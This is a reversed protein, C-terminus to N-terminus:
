EELYNVKKGISIAYDIESKTNKGIYGSPNIVFIEDAMNIKQKHMSGLMMITKLDLDNDFQNYIGPAIVINGNLTLGKQVQMFEDKFKTDGCLTIIKYKKAM